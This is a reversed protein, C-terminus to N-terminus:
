ILHFVEEREFFGFKRDSYDIDNRFHNAYASSIRWVSRNEFLYDLIWIKKMWLWGVQSGPLFQLPFTYIFWSPSLKWVVRKLIQNILIIILLRNSEMLFASQLLRKRFYVWPLLQILFTLVFDIGEEMHFSLTPRPFFSKTFRFKNHMSDGEDVFVSDM